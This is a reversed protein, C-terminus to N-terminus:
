RANFSVSVRPRDSEYTTVWHLLWAPFIVLQGTRPALEFTCASDFENSPSAIMAAGARPDRVMLMGGSTPSSDGADVYYVGSWAADAHTHTSFYVGRTFLNAWGLLGIEAIPARDSHAEIVADAIVRGLTAAAPSWGFFDNGSQWGAREGRMVSPTTKARALVLQALAEDLRPIEVQFTTVLTPFLELTRKGTLMRAPDM